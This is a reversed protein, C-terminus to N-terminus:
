QPKVKFGDPRDEVVFGKELLTQRLRDAEAWDRAQRAEFRKQALAEIEAPIGAEVAEPLGAAFFGLLQMMEGLAQRVADLVGRDRGPEAGDVFRNALRVLEFVKGLAAATNFDHDMVRAFEEQLKRSAERLAMGEESVVATLEGAVARAEYL